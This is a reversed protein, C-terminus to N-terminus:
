KRAIARNSRETQSSKVLEFIFCFGVPFFTNIVPPRDGNVNPRMRM